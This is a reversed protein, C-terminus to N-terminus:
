VVALFLNLRNAPFGLAHQTARRAVDPGNTRQLITHYCIELDRFFHQLVEDGLNM